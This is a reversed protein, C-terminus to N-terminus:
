SLPMSIPRTGTSASPLQLKMGTGGSSLPGCSRVTLASSAAPLMLAGDLLTSKSSIAPPKGGAGLMVPTSSSTASLIPLMMGPSLVLSVSGCTLPVASGNEITVRYTLPTAAPVMGASSNPSQVMVGFGANSGPRFLRVAVAM